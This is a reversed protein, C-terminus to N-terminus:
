DFLSPSQDSYMLDVPSAENTITDRVMFFTATSTPDRQITLAQLAADECSYAEIDITWTVSYTKM